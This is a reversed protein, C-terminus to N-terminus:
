SPFMLKKVFAEKGGLGELSALLGVRWPNDSPVSMKGKSVVGILLIM